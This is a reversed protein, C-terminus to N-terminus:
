YLLLLLLLKVSDGKLSRYSLLCFRVFIGLIVFINDSASTAQQNIQVHLMLRVSMRHVTFSHQHM